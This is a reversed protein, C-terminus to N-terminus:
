RRRTISRLTQSGASYSKAARSLQNASQRITASWSDARGSPPPTSFGPSGTLANTIAATEPLKMYALVSNVYQYVPPDGYSENPNPQGSYWMAAAGAAGYQDYYGGLVTNAVARQAADNNLFQQSSMQPQGALGLWAELNGPMVQWGGLAGTTDNVAKYDGGSEQMLEAWIFKAKESPSTKSPKPPKKSGGGPPYNNLPM